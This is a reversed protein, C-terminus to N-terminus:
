NRREGRLRWWFAVRILVVSLQYVVAPLRDRYHKRYYALLSDRSEHVMRPKVLRTSGGGYHLVAAAPQYDIRWGHQYFRWSLDVDNFFIPFQEDFLGVRRCAAARLLLCSAMPQDVTRCSEQDFARMRYRGCRRPLLRALGSWEAALDFPPPFGRCSSQTQGDPQVLRAAVAGCAPNRVLHDALLDFPQTGYEERIEIDPNLLLWLEGRAQRLLQNNGAAYGLNADNAFLRAEPFEAAVMAASGDASANDAVLIEHTLAPPHRRLSALCARLLDRTNWNVILISLQPRRSM